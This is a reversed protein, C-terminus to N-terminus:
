QPDSGFGLLVQVVPFLLVAVFAVITARAIDSWSPPRPAAPESALPAGRLALLGIWVFPLTWPLDYFGAHYPGGIGSTFSQNSLSGGIQLLVFAGALRVYLPRMRAESHYVAWLVAPLLALGRFDYVFTSWVEYASLDGLVLHVYAVEFYLYVLAVGTVAVDILLLAPQRDRRDPRLVFAAVFFPTTAWFAFDAEPYGADPGFPVGRVVWILQGVAWALCALALSAWFARATRRRAAWLCAAAAFLALALQLRDSMPQALRAPIVHAEMLGLLIVIAVSALPGAIRTPSSPSTSV